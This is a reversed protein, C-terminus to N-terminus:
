PAADAPHFRWNPIGMRPLDQYRRARDDAERQERGRAFPARARPAPQRPEAVDEGRRRQEMRPALQEERLAQQLDAIREDRADIQNQQADIQDQQEVIIQQNHRLGRGEGANHGDRRGEEYIHQACVNCIADARVEGCDGLICSRPICYGGPVKALLQCDGDRCKHDECFTNGPESHRECNPSGCCHQQCLQRADTVQGLCDELRIGIDRVGLLGVAIDLVARRTWACSKKATSDRRLVSAIAQVACGLIM